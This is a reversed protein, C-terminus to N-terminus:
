AETETTGSAVYVPYTDQHNCNVSITHLTLSMRSRKIGPVRKRGLTLLSGPYSTVTM